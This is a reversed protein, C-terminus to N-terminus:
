RLRGFKNILGDRIGLLMYYIKEMKKNEFLVILKVTNALSFLDWTIYFPQSFFYRKWIFVRNRSAYYRRPGDHFTPFYNRGLFRVPRQEGYEQYLMADPHIITVYGNNLLRLGYENDVGDIFLDELFGGLEHWVDLNCLSGSTINFAVQFPSESPRIRSFFLPPIKKIFRLRSKILNFDISKPIILPGVVGCKERNRIYYYLVKVMDDSIESDQDLLLAFKYGESYLQNCGQNLAKAIGKNEKNKIILVSDYNDELDKLSHSMDADDSNDVIIVVSVKSLVLRVRKALDGKPNYTVIVAGVKNM